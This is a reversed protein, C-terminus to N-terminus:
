SAGTQHTFVPPKSLPGSIPWEEWHVLDHSVAHGWHVSGHFARNPNYQYFLHYLGNWQILGNPDNMWNAPPLYHYQPRHPDDRFLQRLYHATRSALRQSNRTM